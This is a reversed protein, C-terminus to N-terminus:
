PSYLYLLKVGPQNFFLNNLPTLSFLNLKGAISGLIVEWFSPQGFEVVEADKLGAEKKTLAVADSFVGIEDVLGLEKAKQASYIRGDAITKTKEETMNRGKAVVKVFVDYTSNILEQMIQNEEETPERFESIIDKHPGSKYTINKVGYNKALDTFNLYSIIVGISGTITAPNAVIKDAGMSSYYGGSAALDSFYAIIKVGTEKKFDITAQYIEESAAASGGPSNVRLIVAKVTSDQSIQNLMKKIKRASTIKESLLGIDPTPDNEIIIGDINIVAIKNEGSGELVVHNQTQNSSLSIIFTVFGFVIFGIFSFILVLVSLGILCGKNRGLFSKKPLYLHTGCNQCFRSEKSNVTKCKPCPMHLLPLM